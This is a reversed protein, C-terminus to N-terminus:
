AREYGAVLHGSTCGANGYGHDHFWKVQERAGNKGYLLKNYQKTEKETLCLSTIINFRGGAILDGPLIEQPVYNIMVEKVFWARREPLSWNWFDEHLRVDRAAQQYGGKMTDLLMYVEPVIYFTFEGYQLDWPTGTGWTTYENNWARKVGEFYYDRLWTIRPSLGTPQKINIDRKEATSTKM